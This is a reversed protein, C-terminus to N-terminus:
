QFRAVNALNDYFYFHSQTIQSVTYLRQAVNTDSVIYESERITNSLWAFSYIIWDFRPLFCIKANFHCALTM